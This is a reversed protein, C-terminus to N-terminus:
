TYRPEGRPPPGQAHLGLRFRWGFDFSAVERGLGLGRIPDIWGAFLLVAQMVGTRGLPHPMEARLMKGAM